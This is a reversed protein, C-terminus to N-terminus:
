DIKGVFRYFIEIEQERIGDASKVAEHVVIKEILANLLPATLETLNTYQKILAIWKKVNASNEKAKDFQAEIDAICQQLHEQEQQYRESMKAFIADPIVGSVRDDYLKMFADDIHKLRYKAKGLDERARKSNAATAKNESDLLSKLLKDEDQQVLESWYQLRSLVYSYLTDYRIYHATCSIKGKQAHKSCSFTSYEYNKRKNTSFRLSWGCDSCKVLGSFIQTANDKTSRHRSRLHQQVLDFTEKSIIAEHTGEVREWEDEPTRIRKKNKFSPKVQRYHITNGIYTEDKLIRQVQSLSWIYPRAESMDAFFNAFAGTRQYHLWSPTPICKATLAKSIKSAGDGHAAMDFIMEVIDRTDEDIILHNKRNPDKAYGYPAYTFIREGNAFKAKFIRSVNDSTNKAHMENFVCKFPAFDSLGNATDENDTVAIFRIRSILFEELYQFVGIFNRGLRSMDKTIICNIKGSRVDAMMRQFSPRDFNTGSYGDDVYEGVVPWGKEQVFQRLLIRQSRISESEGQKEDDQSLRMYIGAQISQKMPQRM